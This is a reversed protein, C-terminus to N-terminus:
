ILKMIKESNNPASTFKGTNISFYGQQVKVPPDARQHLESEPDDISRYGRALIIGAKVSTPNGLDVGPLIMKLAQLSKKAMSEFADKEFIGDCIQQWNAPIALESSQGFLCDPYWSFYAYNSHPYEVYDGYPGQVVSFSPINKVEPPRFIFGAKLRHTWINEDKIGVMDDISRKGSWAANIIIDSKIEITKDPGHCWTTYGTENQTIGTVPHNLLFKIQPQSRLEEMFIERIRVPDVAYEETKIVSQIQQPDFLDNKGASVSFLRQPKKGLYHLQDDKLLLQYMEEVVLYYNTLFDPSLLSNRAILYDFSKSKLKEWDIKKRILKDIVPAFMMADTLLKQATKHSFDMAYIFGLHIKGEQNLSAQRYMEKSQDILNIQYGRKSLQLAITCGQIGTGIISATPKFYM